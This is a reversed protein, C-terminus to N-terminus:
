HKVDQRLKKFFSEPTFDKHPVLSRLGKEGQQFARLDLLDQLAKKYGEDKAVHNLSSLALYLQEAADWNAEDELRKDKVLFDMRAKAFQKARAAPPRLKPLKDLEAKLESLGKLAADVRAPVKSRDLLRTEMHTELSDLNPMPNPSQLLDAALARPMSFYWSGWKLMGLKRSQLPGQEQRWSPSTLNHHCGFCDYEAFEPWVAGKEARHKLVDLAAEAAVIQGTAWARAQFDDEQDQEVWHKPVNALFSGFEFMLRPHGAAIFDHNVDRAPLGNEAPAGVHCRACVKARGSLSALDVFGYQQKEKAAKQKWAKERHPVLWKVASGHCAECGVGFTREDEAWAQNRVKDPAAEPTCHCALCRADEAPKDICLKKGMDLGEKCELVKVANAHPDNCLWLSYSFPYLSDPKKATPM